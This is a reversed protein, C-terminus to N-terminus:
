EYLLITAASKRHLQTVLDQDALHMNAIILSPKIALAAELLSLADFAECVTYHQEVLVERLQRLTGANTDAILVPNPTANMRLLSEIENLLTPTDIPKTLYRDVGLQYGRERDEVISLIVIPLVRTEPRNKLAAVVDFGSLGPMRVDLVILAPQQSQALLIADTGNAAECVDYGEDALTKHLLTRINEDDDVVLIKLKDSASRPHAQAISTKLQQILDELLLPVPASVELEHMVVPLTFYFHSGVGLQSEVWLRGGHAEVIEKGIPM